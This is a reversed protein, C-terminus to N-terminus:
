FWDHFYSFTVKLASVPNVPLKRPDIWLLSHVNVMNFLDRLHPTNAAVEIWTMCIYQLSPSCSQTGYFLLYFTLQVLTRSFCRFNLWISRLNRTCYCKGRLERAWINLYEFIWINLFFHLALTHFNRLKGINLVWAVEFM